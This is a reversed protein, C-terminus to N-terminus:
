NMALNIVEEFRKAIKDIRFEAEAYSRANRGLRERLEANRLLKESQQLFEAHDDPAVVSGAQARAVVKAALNKTPVSLLIPRQACLYSLVKSPVSFEGADPELVALLVDAAGLVDAMQDFPQFPLVRLNSQNSGNEKLWKAGIGESIVLVKADMPQVRQAIQLLLAPNHKMALTGSYILCAKDAVGHARSWPNDKPRVQIEPLPAWNHIVACRNADVGWQKMIPHFDDTILVVGRSGRLVKRDLHMLYSGVASGVPGLRKKLLRKAALGYLDQVWSVFPIGLRTSRRYALHQAETPTNASIVVDPRCREILDALLRGYQVEMQRRSLFSTKDIMKGLSISEVQFTDPDQESRGTRGQPTSTSASFVHRVSHGSAALARSLQLQFPHGAYDHVVVKLQKM